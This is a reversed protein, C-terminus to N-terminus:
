ISCIKFCLVYFSYLVHSQISQLLSLMDRMVGFVTSKLPYVAFIATFIRKIFSWYILGTKLSWNPFCALFAQGGLIPISPFTPFSPFSLLSLFPAPQLPTLTEFIATKM